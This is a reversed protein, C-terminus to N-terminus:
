FLFFGGSIPEELSCFCEEKTLRENDSSVNSVNAEKTTAEEKQIQPRELCMSGSCNYRRKQTRGEKQM